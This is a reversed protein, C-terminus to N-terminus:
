LGEEQEKKYNEYRERPTLNKNFIAKKNVLLQKKRRKVDIIDYTFPQICKKDKAKKARFEDLEKFYAEKDEVEAPAFDFPNIVPNTTSTFPAIPVKYKYKPIKAFVLRLGIAKLYTNVIEAVRNKSNMDLKIDIDYPNCTYMQEVLKRGQPSVSHIMLNEIVAEAGIHNFNNIEMNQNIQKRYATNIRISIDYLYGGANGPACVIQVDEISSCSKEEVM